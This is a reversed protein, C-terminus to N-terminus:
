YDEDDYDDDFDDLFPDDEILGDNILFQRRQLYADRMFLYPDGSILGDVSLLQVRTDLADVGIAVYRDRSPTILNLPNTFFDLVSGVADTVTAPGRAPLMLFPGSGIGWVGFTQGFDEDHRPLGGRSAVDFLGLIGVTSNLLFRGTDSAGQRPKGQLFQNLAVAPTGLNVLVNHVGRKLPGPVFRDYGKAVPRIVWRDATDNVWFVKRNVPELPDVNDAQTRPAAAVALCALALWL